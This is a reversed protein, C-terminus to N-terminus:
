NLNEKLNKFRKFKNDKKIDDPSLETDDIFKNGSYTYHWISELEYLDKNFFQNIQDQKNFNKKYENLFDRFKDQNEQIYDIKFINLYIENIRNKGIISQLYTDEIKKIEDILIVLEEKSNPSSNLRENVSMRYIQYNEPLDISFKYPIISENEERNGTDDNFYQIM